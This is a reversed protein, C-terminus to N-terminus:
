CINVEITIKPDKCLSTRKLTFFSEPHINLFFESQPNKLCSISIRPKKSIAFNYLCLKYLFVQLGSDGLKGLTVLALPDIFFGLTSVKGQTAISLPDIFLM